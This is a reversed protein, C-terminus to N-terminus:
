HKELFSKLWKAKHSLLDVMAAFPERDPTRAHQGFKPNGIASAFLGADTTGFEQALSQEIRKLLDYANREEVEANSNYKRGRKRLASRYAELERFLIMVKDRGTAHSAQWLHLLYLAGFVLTLGIMLSVLGAVISIVLPQQYFIAVQVVSISFVTVIVGGSKIFDWKANGGVDKWLSGMFKHM